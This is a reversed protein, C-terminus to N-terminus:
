VVGALRADLMDRVVPSLGFTEAVALVCCLAAAIDDWAAQRAAQDAVPLQAAVRGYLAIVDEPPQPQFQLRDMARGRRTARERSRRAANPGTAGQVIPVVGPTMDRWPLM